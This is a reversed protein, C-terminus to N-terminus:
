DGCGDVRLINGGSRELNIGLMPDRKIGTDWRGNIGSEYFLIWKGEVLILGRKDSNEVLWVSSM